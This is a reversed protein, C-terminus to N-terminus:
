YKNFLHIDLVIGKSELGAANGVEAFQEMRCRSLGSALRQGSGKRELSAWM